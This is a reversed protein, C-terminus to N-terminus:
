EEDVLLLRRRNTTGLDQRTHRQLDVPVLWAEPPSGPVYLHYRGLPLRPFLYFRSTDVEAQMLTRAQLEELIEENFREQLLARRRLFEATAEERAKTGGTKKRALRAVENRAQVVKQELPALRRRIFRRVEGETELSFAKGRYFRDSTEELLSSTSIKIDADSFIPNGGFSKFRKIEAFANQYRRFAARQRASAEAIPQALSAVGDDLSDLAAGTSRQLGALAKAHASYLSDVAATATSDLLGVASIGEPIEGDLRYASQGCGPVLVLALLWIWHHRYGSIKLAGLLFLHFRYSFIPRHTASLLLALFPRL